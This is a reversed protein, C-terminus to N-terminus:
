HEEPVLYPNEATEASQGDAFDFHVIQIDSSSLNPNRLIADQRIRTLLEKQARIYDVDRAPGFLYLMQEHTYRIYFGADTLGYATVDIGPYKQQFEAHKLKAMDEIAEVPYVVAKTIEAKSQAFLSFNAAMALFITALTKM